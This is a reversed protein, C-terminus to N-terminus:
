WKCAYAQLFSAKASTRVPTAIAAQSFVVRQASCPGVLPYSKVEVSIAHQELIAAM